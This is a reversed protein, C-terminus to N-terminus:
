FGSPMKSNDSSLLKFHSFPLKRTIHKIPQSYQQLYSLRPDEDSQYFFRVVVFIHRFRGGLLWSLNLGHLEVVTSTNEDLSKEVILLFEIVLLGIM